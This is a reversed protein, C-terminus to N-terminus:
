PVFKGKNICGEEEAEEGRGRVRGDTGRLTEGKRGSV